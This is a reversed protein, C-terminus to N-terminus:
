FALHLSLRHTVNLERAPVLAYDVGFGRLGFGIGFALSDVDRNLIYGARFSAETDGPALPFGKLELGLRAEAKQRLVQVGEAALQLVFNHGVLRESEVARFTDQPDRDWGLLDGLGLAYSLGARYTRPLPDGEQEFRVDQGLNQVAAGFNLPVRSLKWLLGLDGAFSAARVEQALNMRIWKGQAGVSLGPLAEVSYGFLFAWDQEAKRYEKTGGTLDLEVSGADHYIAGAGFTGGRTPHAAGLFSLSAGGFGSMYMTALAPRRISALAAPNHGMSEVDGAEASYAQAMAAARAGIAQRLFPAATRGAEGYLPVYFFLPCVGIKLTAWLSIRRDPSRPFYSDPGM